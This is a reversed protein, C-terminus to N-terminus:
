IALMPNVERHSHVSDTSFHIRVISYPHFILVFYWRAERLHNVLDQWRSVWVIWSCQQLALCASWPLHAGEYKFVQHHFLTFTILILVRTFLMMFTHLQYIFGNNGHSLASHNKRTNAGNTESWIPDSLHPLTNNSSTSIMWDLHMLFNRGFVFTKNCLTLFAM